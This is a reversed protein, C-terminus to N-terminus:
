STNKFANHTVSRFDNVEFDTGIHKITGHRGIIEYVTEPKFISELKLLEKEVIGFVRDVPLFRHGTIPFIVEVEEIHQPAKDSLLWAHIMALISSNKNQGGCGDSVLRIRTFNTMNISNLKDIVCSSIMNSDRSYENEIWCYSTVSSKNLTSKSHGQVITFNQLYVQRSYYARQDLVKPLPPNKQFDYSLILLQPDTDKLLEYFANFRPNHM